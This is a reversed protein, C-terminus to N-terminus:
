FYHKLLLSVFFWQFYWHERVINIKMNNESVNKAVLIALLLVSSNETTQKKYDSDLAEIACIWTDIQYIHKEYLHLALCYRFHLFHVLIFM